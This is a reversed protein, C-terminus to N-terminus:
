LVEKFYNFMPYYNLSLPMLPMAAGRNKLVKLEIERPNQAKAEEINFDKTGTGKLQLAILVSATYELSGSEKFATMAAKTTYSERNFSSIAIVPIKCDRSLRKLELTNKDVNQKDTMRENYPALIQMYDIVVAPKNGTIRIHDKVKQTVEKASIDGVGEYIYIHEAYEGYRLVGKQILEVEQPKYTLYRSGDTIGRATKALRTDLRKEKCELFTERSISKSMLEGESMELTFILVDTGAKAMADAMQMVLTTKGLSSIAGVVTLGEYLGGGLIADLREFGTSVPKTNVSAKIGYMFDDLRAHASKSKKYAKVIEERARKIMGATNQIMDSFGQRNKSLYENADKYKDYLEFPPLIFSLDLEGLVDAIKQAAEKGAEDSDTAIILTQKALKGAKKLDKLKRKLMNPNCGGLAVAEGGQSIISLADIEGEVIYIPSEADQFAKENFMCANGVSNVVRAGHTAQLDLNRATYSSESTPIVLVQWTEVRDTDHNKAQITASGLQYREILAKAEDETFGRQTTLYEYAKFSTEHAEKILQAPNPNKKPATNQQTHPEEALRVAEKFPMEFGEGNYTNEYSGYAQGGELHVNFLEAAKDIAGKMDTSYDMAILDILSYNSNCSHCHCYTNGSSKNKYYTMSPHQDDHDPNLCTFPKGPNVGKYNTLYDRYLTDDKHLREVFANRTLTDM